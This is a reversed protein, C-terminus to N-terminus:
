DREDESEMVAESKQYHCINLYECYECPNDIVVKKNNSNVSTTLNPTINFRGKQYALDIQEKADKLWIDFTPILGELYTKKRSAAANGEIIFDDFFAEVFTQHKAEFLGVGNMKKELDKLVEKNKIFSAYYGVGILEKNIFFPEKQIARAYLPLQVNKGEKMVIIKSTLNKM